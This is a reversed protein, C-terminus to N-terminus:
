TFSMTTLLTRDLHDGSPRPPGSSKHHHKNSFFIEEPFTVRITPSTKLVEMIILVPVAFDEDENTTDCPTQTGWDWIEM